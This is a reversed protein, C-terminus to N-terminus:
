LARVDEPDDSWPLWKGVPAIYNNHDPDISTLHECRKKAAEESGYVGRVKVGRVKCGKLLEPTIFSLCAWKQEYIEDDEKLYDITKTNESAM